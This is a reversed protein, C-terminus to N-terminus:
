LNRDFPWERILREAEQLLEARKADEAAQQEPTPLPKVVVWVGDLAFAAETGHLRADRLAMGVAVLGQQDRLWQNYRQGLLHGATKCWAADSGGCVDCEIPM